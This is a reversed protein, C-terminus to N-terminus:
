VRWRAQAWNFGGTLLPSEEWQCSRIMEKYVEMRRPGPVIEMFKETSVDVQGWVGTSRILRVAVAEEQLERIFGDVVTEGILPKVIKFKRLKAIAPGAM